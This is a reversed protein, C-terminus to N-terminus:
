DIVNVDSFLAYGFDGNTIFFDGKTQKSNKEEINQEPWNASRIASGTSHTFGRIPVCDLGLKDLPFVYGAIQTGQPM